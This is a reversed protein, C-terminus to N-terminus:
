LEERCEEVGEMDMYIILERLVEDKLKGISGYSSAVLLVMFNAGGFYMIRMTMMPLRASRAQNLNPQRMRGFPKRHSVVDEYFGDGM